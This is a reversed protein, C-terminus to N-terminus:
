FVIVASLSLLHSRGFERNVEPFANYVYAFEIPVNEIGYFGLGASATGQHETDLSGGLRVVWEQSPRAEVGVLVRGVDATGAEGELHLYQGDGYFGLAECPQWGLGGRLNVTRTSDNENIPMPGPGFPPPPLSLTGDVDSDTWGVSGTFGALWQESLAALVGGSLTIGESDIDTDQPFGMVMDDYSLFSQLLKVSGGVALGRRLRRSYGVTLEDSDLRFDNGQRSTAQHSDTRVYTAFVSGAEPLRYGATSAFGTVTAGEDFRVYNTTLTGVAEFDFPPERLFDWGAPNISSGMPYAVSASRGLTDTFASVRDLSLNIRFAVPEEDLDIGSATGGGVV